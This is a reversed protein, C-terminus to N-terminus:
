RNCAGSVTIRVSGDAPLVALVFQKHGNGKLQCVLAKAGQGLATGRIDAVSQSSHGCAEHEIVRFHAGGQEFRDILHELVNEIM